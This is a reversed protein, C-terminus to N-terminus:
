FANSGFLFFEHKAFHESGKYEASELCIRTCFQCGHGAQGLNVLEHFGVSSDKSVGM